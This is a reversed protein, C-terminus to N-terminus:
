KLVVEIVKRCFVVDLMDIRMLQISEGYIDKTGFNGKLEDPLEGTITAVFTCATLFAGLDSQHSGDPAYLEIGPRLKKAEEWVDGIRVVGATNKSAIEAYVKSITEQYQPVKERAWTQYFYPKAGSDKILDCFLQGYYLVSDAQEITAMSQDQLVVVDFKGSEILEKTKFGRAGRWHQSLTAGGKTSKKTILKTDTQESILSVIQPMNEVYTYSNGVFLVKLSDIPIQAFSANTLLIALCVIVSLLIPKKM